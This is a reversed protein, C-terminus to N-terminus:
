EKIGKLKKARNVITDSITLAKQYKKEIKRQEKREKVIARALDFGVLGLASLGFTTSPDFAEKMHIKKYIPNAINYGVTAVAAAGEADEYYWFLPYLNRILVVSTTGLVGFLGHKM